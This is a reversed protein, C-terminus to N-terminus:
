IELENIVELLNNSPKPARADVILGQPDILIYVPVGSSKLYDYRFDSKWGNEVRYQGGELEYKSLAKKWAPEDSLCATIIEINKGKLELEIEELIPFERFCPACTTSWVDILLYKGEFEKLTIKNGKLGIFEFDPAKNGKLLPKLTEYSKEIEAVYQSDTCINKFRDMIPENISLRSTQLRITEKLIENKISETLFSEQIVDLMKSTAQIKDKINLRRVKMFVYSRLFYKYEDLQMLTTDNLNVKSLYQYFNDPIQLKKYKYENLDGYMMYKIRANEFSIFDKDLDPNNEQLENLPKKWVEIWKNVSNLFDNPNQNYYAESDSTDAVAHLYIKWDTYYNNILASQNGSFKFVGEIREIYLSDNPILFIKRDLGKSYVYQPKDIPIEFHFKGHNDVLTKFISGKLNIQFEESALDPIQGDIITSNREPNQSCSILVFILPIYIFIKAKVKKNEAFSLLFM